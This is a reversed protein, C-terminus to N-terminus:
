LSLSAFYVERSLQRCWLAELTAGIPLELYQLEDHLGQLASPQVQAM